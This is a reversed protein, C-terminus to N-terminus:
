LASRLTTPLLTHSYGDRITTICVPNPPVPM